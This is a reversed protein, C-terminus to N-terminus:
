HSGWLADKIKDFLSHGEAEQSGAEAFEKLLKKQKSNLKTPVIVEVMVHLDGRTSRNLRPMGKGKFRFVTGNQTGAPIKLNEKEGLMVEIEVSGGLAADSFYIGKKVVLDDGRREVTKHAEVEVALYLDGPPGGLTGPAGEGPMRILKGSDIGAPVKVQLTRKKEVSGRGSCEPCPKKLQRGRGQCAGCPAVQTLVGFPTRVQQHLQGTGHCTSCNAFGDAELTQKGDCKPCNVDSTLEVDKNVGQFAEELTLRLGMRYDAGRSPRAQQQRRSGGGMDFISEFLDGFNFGGGGGFGGMDPGPQNTGPAHGYRDYYAKKEEDGLVSYAENIEGFKQEAGAKDEAVDPHYERALRKFAKKIDSKDADRSVGLIQYYDKQSM